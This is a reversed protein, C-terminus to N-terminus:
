SILVHLVGQCLTSPELMAKLVGIQGTSTYILEIDVNGCIFRGFRYQM